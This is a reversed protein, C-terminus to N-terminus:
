TFFLGTIDLTGQSSDNDKEPISIGDGQVIIKKVVVDDTRISKLTYHTNIFGEHTFGTSITQNTFDRRLMTEGVPATVDGLNQLGAVTQNSRPSTKRYLTLVKQQSSSLQTQDITLTALSTYLWKRPLEKLTVSIKDQSPSFYEVALISSGLQSTIRSKITDDIMIM